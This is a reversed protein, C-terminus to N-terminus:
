IKTYYVAPVGEIKNELATECSMMEVSLPEEVKLVVTKGGNITLFLIYQLVASIGSIEATKSKREQSNIKQLRM